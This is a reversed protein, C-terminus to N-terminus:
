YQQMPIHSECLTVSLYFFRSATIFVDAGLISKVGIYVSVRQKSFQWIFADLSRSYCVKNRREELRLRVEEHQRELEERRKEYVKTLRVREHVGKEVM